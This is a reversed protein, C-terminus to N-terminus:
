ARCLGRREPLAMRGRPLGPRFAQRCAETALGCRPAYAAVGAAASILRAGRSRAIDQDPAQEHVTSAVSGRTLHAPARLVTPGAGGRDGAGAYMVAV